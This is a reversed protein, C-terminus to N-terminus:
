GRDLGDHDDWSPINPRIQGEVGTMFGIEQTDPDKGFDPFDVLPVTGLYEWTDMVRPEDNLKKMETYEHGVSPKGGTLGGVEIKQRIRENMWGTLNEGTSNKYPSWGSLAAVGFGGVAVWFFRFLGGFIFDLAGGTIFSLIFTLIFTLVGGFVGWAIKKINFPITIGGNRFKRTGDGQKFFPTLWISGTSLARVLVKQEEEEAETLEKM